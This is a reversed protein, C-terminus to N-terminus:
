LEKLIHDSSSKVPSEIDTSTQITAAVAVRWSVSICFGSLYAQRTEKPASFSNEGSYIILYNKVKFFVWLTYFICKPNYNKYLM